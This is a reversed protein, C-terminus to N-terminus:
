GRQALLQQVQRAQYFQLQVKGIMLLQLKGVASFQALQGSTQFCMYPSQGLGELRAIRYTVTHRHRNDPRRVRTLGRQQVCQHTLLARYHTIHM